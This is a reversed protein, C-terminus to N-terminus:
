CFNLTKLEAQCTMINSPCDNCSAVTYMYMHMHTCEVHIHHMCVDIKDHSQEVMQM